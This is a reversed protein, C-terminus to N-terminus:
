QLKKEYRGSLAGDFSLYQDGLLGNFHPSNIRMLVKDLEELRKTSGSFSTGSGRDSILALVQVEKAINGSIRLDLGQSLTTANSNGLNLSFSKSGSIQLNPSFSTNEQM